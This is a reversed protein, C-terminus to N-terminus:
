FYAVEGEEVGSQTNVKPKGESEKGGLFGSANGM